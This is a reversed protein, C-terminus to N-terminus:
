IPLRVNDFYCNVGEVAYKKLISDLHVEKSLNSFNHLKMFCPVMLEASINGQLQFCFWIKLGRTGMKSERRVRCVRTGQM